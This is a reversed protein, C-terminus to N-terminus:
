PVLTADTVGGKLKFGSSFVKTVPSLTDLSCYVVDWRKVLPPGVYFVSAWCHVAASNDKKSQLVQLAITLSVILPAPKSYRFPASQGQGSRTSRETGSSM